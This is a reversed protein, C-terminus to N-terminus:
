MTSLSHDQSQRKNVEEISRRRGCTKEESFKITGYDDRNIWERCLVEMKIEQFTMSVTTRWEKEKNVRVSSVFVFESTSRTWLVNRLRKKDRGDRTTDEVKISRWFFVTCSLKM